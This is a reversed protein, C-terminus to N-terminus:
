RIVAFNDVIQSETFTQESPSKIYEFSDILWRQGQKVYHVKVEWLDVLGSQTTAGQESFPQELIALLNLTASDGHNACQMTYQYIIVIDKATNLNDWYHTLYRGRTEGPKLKAAYYQNFANSFYPTLHQLRNARNLHERYHKFEAYLDASNVQCQAQALAAHAFLPALLLWAILFQSPNSSM